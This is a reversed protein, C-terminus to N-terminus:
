EYAQWSASRVASIGEFEFAGADVPRGTNRPRRRFDQTPAGDTASFDRAVSDSYLELDGGSFDEFVASPDSVAMVEGTQGTAARFSNTNIEGAQFTRGEGSAGGWIVAPASNGPDSQLIVYDLAPGLPPEDFLLATQSGTALISNKILVDVGRGIHIGAGGASGAVTCNLILQAPRAEGTAVLDIGTERNDLVVSNKLIGSEGLIFGSRENGYAACEGIESGPAYIEFGAGGNGFSQSRAVTLNDCGGNAFFGAAGGTRNEHFRSDMVQLRPSQLAWLGQASDHFSSQGIFCDPTEQISFAVAEAQCDVDLFRLGGGGRSLLIGTQFNQIRIGSFVLNSARATTPTGEIRIGATRDELEAGDLTVSEGPIAKFAIPAASTGSNSIALSERYVGQRLYVTDGARASAAARALTRWPQQFQRGPHGDSAAPSSADVFYANGGARVELELGNSVTAGVQVWLRGSTAGEPIIFDIRHATWRAIKEVMVNGIMVLSGQVAKEGFGTGWLSVWGGPPASQVDTYDLVLAEREGTGTEPDPIPTVRPLPTETPIPVPTQTPSPTPEATPSPLPTPTPTATATPTPDPTATPSPTPTPTAVSEREVNVRLAYSGSQGTTRANVKFRYVGSGAARTVTGDLTLRAEEGAPIATETPTEPDGPAYAALDLEAGGPEREMVIEIRDGARAVIGYWDIDAAEGAPRPSIHLADFRGTGLLAAQQPRDNEEFRDSFNEGGAVGISPAQRVWDSGTATRLARDKRGLTHGSRPTQAEPQQWIAGDALTDANYIPGEIFRAYDVSAGDNNRLEMSGGWGNLLRFNPNGGTFYLNAANAGSGDSVVLIGGGALQSGNPFTYSQDTVGDRHARLTWGSIDALGIGYNRIEFRGGSPDVESILVQPAASPSVTLAANLIGSEGGPNEVQVSRTGALAGSDVIMTFALLGSDLWKTEVVNVGAGAVSVQAGVVFNSGQVVADYREGPAILSPSLKGPDPVAPETVASIGISYTGYQNMGAKPEPSKRVYIVFEGARPARWVIRSRDDSQQTTSVSGKQNPAPDLIDDHQALIELTEGDLLFMQPDPRGYMTCGISIDYTVGANAEFRYFDDDVEPMSTPSYISVEIPVADVVLTPGEPVGGNPEAGDAQFDMRQQGFTEQMEPMRGLGLEIWRDWFSEITMVASPDSHFSTLVRWVDAQPLHLADDDTGPSSDLTDPGDIMDWLAANVARENAGGGSNPSELSYDFGEAAGEAFGNRDVYLQPMPLGHYELVANSVYTAFGESWSLRMDENNDGIYHTGGPNTMHGYLSEVFHGMEHLINPDDYGDDDALYLTTGGFFSSTRGGSKSWSITLTQTPRSGSLAAVWDAMRVGMDFANFVMSSPDVSAPNGISAPASVSGFNVNQERQHGALTASQMAYFANGNRYDTVRLRLSSHYDSRALVRAAVSRSTNDAVHISYSGDEATVGSALIEGTGADLVEIDAQRVPRLETGSYGGPEYLRNTYHFSGSAVWDALVPSPLAAILLLALPTARLSRNLRPQM